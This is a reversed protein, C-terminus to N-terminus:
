SSYPNCSNPNGGTITHYKAFFTTFQERPPRTPLNAFFNRCQKWSGRLPLAVCSERVERLYCDKRLLEQLSATKTFSNTFAPPRRLLTWSPQGNTQQKRLQERLERVYWSWKNYAFSRSCNVSLNSPKVRLARSCNMFVDRPEVQSAWSCNMFVDRPEM